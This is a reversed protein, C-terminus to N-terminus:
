RFGFIKHTKKKKTNSKVINSMRDVCDNTWEPLGCKYALQSESVKVAVGGSVTLWNSSNSMFAKFENSPSDRNLHELLPLPLLFPYRDPHTRVIWPISNWAVSRAEPTTFTNVHHTSYVKNCWPILTIRSILEATISKNRAAAILDPHLPEQSELVSLHKMLYEAPEAVSSM